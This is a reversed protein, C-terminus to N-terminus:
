IFTHVDLSHINNNSYITKLLNEGYADDRLSIKVLSSSFDLTWKAALGIPIYQRGSHASNDEETLPNEDEMYATNPFNKKAYSARLGNSIPGDLM